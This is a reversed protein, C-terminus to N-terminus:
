RTFVSEATKACKGDMVQISVFPKKQWDEVVAEVTSLNQRSVKGVRVMQVTLFIGLVLAIVQMLCSFIVQKPLGLLEGVM